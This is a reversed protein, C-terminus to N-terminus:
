REVVDEFGCGGNLRCGNIDRSFGVAAVADDTRSHLSLEDDDAFREPHNELLGWVQEVADGFGALDNIEAVQEGVLIGAHTITNDPSANLRVKGQKGLVTELFKLVQIM